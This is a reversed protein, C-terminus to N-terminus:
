TGDQAVPLGGQGMSLIINWALFVSVVKGGCEPSQTHCAMNPSCFHGRLTVQLLFEIDERRESDGMDSVDGDWPVVEELTLSVLGM